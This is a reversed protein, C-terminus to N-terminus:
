SQSPDGSRGGDKPGSDGDGPAWRGPDIQGGYLPLALPPDGPVFQSWPRTLGVTGYRRVRSVHDLDVVDTLVTAGDASHVRVLGEPDVIVSQGTGVPGAANISVVFVQNVIANARALVVEQPRDCTTTKVVNFVVEAGMWALHRTVEPFWADYCVNLGARGVGPLDFVVFRDGADFPEYPRWPFVKRYSAALQGEPSLVVATDFVENGEGLECVTGPILWVGLDGALEALARVRPGSLPEALARYEGATAADGHLHLEPYVILQSQPFSRAVRQVDEAFRAEPQPGTLPMAQVAALPLARSM